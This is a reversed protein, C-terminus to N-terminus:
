YITPRTETTSVCYLSVCLMELGVTKGFLQVGTRSPLRAHPRPAHHQVRVDPPRVRVPSLRPAARGGAGRYLGPQCARGAEGADGARSRFFRRRAM